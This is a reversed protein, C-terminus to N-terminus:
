RGAQPERALIQTLCEKIREAADYIGEATVTDEEVVEAMICEALRISDELGQVDDETLNDAM